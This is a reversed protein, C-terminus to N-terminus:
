HAGLTASHLNCRRESRIRGDVDNVRRVGYSGDSRQRGGKMTLGDVRVPVTVSTSEAAGESRAPGTASVHVRRTAAFGRRIRDDFDSNGGADAWIRLCRTM